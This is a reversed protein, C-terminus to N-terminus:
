SQSDLPAACSPSELRLPLEVKVKTGKGVASKFRIRGSFAFVRESMGIAGVGYPTNAPDYGIGNDQISLKLVPRDTAIVVVVRVLTASAHKVVNSLAEQIIRYVAITIQSDLVSFDGVCKLSFRCSPHIENFHHVMEEVAGALGLTDLIEPRLRTVISRGREYLDLTLKVISEARDKISNIEACPPVQNALFMIRQSELRASIVTANLEDHIEIAISRREDEIAANVSQIFKRKERDAKWAQDRDDAILRTRVIVFTGAIGSLLAAISGFVATWLASYAGALEDAVPLSVTAVLTSGELRELATLREINDIADKQIVVEQNSGSSIMRSAVATIPEGVLPNNTEPFILLTNHRDQITTRSNKYFNLSHYFPFFAEKVALNTVILGGFKNDPGAFRRAVHIGTKGSALGQEANSIFTEKGDKLAQFYGRHSLDTGDKGVVGARRIGDAGVITFSAIGPLRDRYRKLLVVIQAHREPSLPENFDSWHLNDLVGLMLNDALTFGYRDHSAILHAYAIAQERLRANARSFSNIGLLILALITLVVAIWLGWLILPTNTKYNLFRFSKYVLSTM